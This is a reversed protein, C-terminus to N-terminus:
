TNNEEHTMMEGDHHIARLKEIERDLLRLSSQM